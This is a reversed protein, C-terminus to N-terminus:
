YAEEESFDKKSLRYESELITTPIKWCHEVNNNVKLKATTGKFEEFMKYQESDSAKTFRKTKLFDRFAQPKFFFYDKLEFVMGQLVDQRDKAGRNNEIFIQLQNLFQGKATVEGPLQIFDDEQMNSLLTQVMDAWIAPAVPRPSENAQAICQKRYEAHSSLQDVTLIIVKGNHTLEYVPNDSVWKKLGSIENTASNGIGFKQSQCKIKECVTKFMPEECRYFYKKDEVQKFITLVERSPLPPTFYKSNYYDLKEELKEPFRERLYIGLQFLAMNRSGEAFGQSALTILCPPAGKFDDNSKETVPKDIIVMGLNSVVKSEYHKIFMGLEILANGEDDLAYRTPYEPHNYPLNLFNGTGKSNLEIQKPFIESEGYGLWAAIETLKIQMDRATCPEDVFLFVHAGGSKSKCVVLPLKKDLIQTILKKHDFGDYTDIDIAGWRCTNDDRIPIIGLSPEKGDLHNNWQLETLEQKEIWSKAELKGNQNKSRSETQGYARTLGSFIEIFKQREEM